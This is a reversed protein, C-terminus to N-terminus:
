IVPSIRAAALRRKICFSSESSFSLTMTALHELRLEIFDLEQLRHQRTRSFGDVRLLDLQEFMSLVKRTSREELFTSSVDTARDM